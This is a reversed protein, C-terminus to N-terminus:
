PEVRSTLPRCLTLVLSALFAVAGITESSEEIAMTFPEPFFRGRGFLDDAAYGLGLFGIAALFLYTPADGRRLLGVVPARVLLPPVIFLAVLLLLPVGWALKLFPSVEGDLWWSVKFSVGYPNLPADQGLKQHGDRPNLHEHLDMERLAAAASLMFLWLFNLVDRRRRHIFMGAFAGIAAMVWIGTHLREVLGTESFLDVGRGEGFWAGLALVVSLLIGAVACPM